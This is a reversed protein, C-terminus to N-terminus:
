PTPKPQTPTPAPTQAPAPTPSPTNSSDKPPEETIPIEGLAEQVIREIDAFRSSIRLQIGVNRYTVGPEMKEPLNQRQTLWITTRHRTGPFEVTTNPVIDFKLEKATVNVLILIDDKSTDSGFQETTPSPGPQQGSTLIAFAALSLFISLFGKNM